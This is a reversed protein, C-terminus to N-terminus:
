ELYIGPWARSLTGRRAMTFASPLAALNCLGSLLVRLERLAVLIQCLPILLESLVLFPRRLDIRLHRFGAFVPTGGPLCSTVSEIIAGQAVVVFRAPRVV